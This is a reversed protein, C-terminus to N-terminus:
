ECVTITRACIWDTLDFMNIISDYGGSALYIEKAQDGQKALEMFFLQHAASAWLLSRGDPSYNTQVPSGKLKECQQIHRSESVDRMGFSLKGRERARHASSTRIHQIGRSM